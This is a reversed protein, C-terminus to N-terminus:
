HYGNSNNAETSTTNDRSMYLSINYDIRLDVLESHNPRLGAIRVIEWKKISGKQIYNNSCIRDIRRIQFEEVTEIIKNLYEKSEPLKDIYFNIMAAKGIKQGILSKTIRVPKELKLLDCYVDRILSKIEKDREQWNVRTTTKVEKIKNKQKSPLNKNLWEKDNRYFWSCQKKLINHVETRSFSPNQSIFQLIDNAYENHMKDLGIKNMPKENSEKIKFSTNLKDSLGIKNSYKKITKPDCSMIRALEGVKYKEELVLEKLKNEWVDGFKKIRGIRFRDEAKNDPGIRSYIFGCNCSFTGVPKRTKYDATITCNNVVSKKFHNAVPNLCPWPDHGFPDKAEIRKSFFDRINDCLFSIFLINRIPHITKKPKRAIMKLWNHEDINDINSELMNLLRDSYYSKFSDYLEKQKIMGNLTKYGHDSLLSQYMDYIISQTYDRFDNELLFQASNAIMILHKSITEDEEFVTNYDIVDENLRIFELRSQVKKYYSYKKLYCFHIPCVFVGQVQHVRHFFAEGYLDIDQNVCETCYYLANKTCISGAVIGTKTYLGKGDSFMMEKELSVRRELPLFPIYLPFLTHKNILYKTEYLRNHKLQESVFNLKSPLAISPICTRSGFVEELTDKYNVNGSYYHYRAVTSYLIEEEYPDTFFLLM